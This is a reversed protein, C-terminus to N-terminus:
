RCELRTPSRLSGPARAVCRLAHLGAWPGPAVVLLVPYALLVDRVAYMNRGLLGAQLIAAAIWVLMQWNM